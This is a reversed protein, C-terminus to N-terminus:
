INKKLIININIAHTHLHETVFVLTYSIVSSLIQVLHTSSTTTASEVWEPSATALLVREM